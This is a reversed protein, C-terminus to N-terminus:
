CLKEKIYIRLEDQNYRIDNMTAFMTLYDIKEFSTINSKPSVNYIKINKERLFNNMLKSPDHKEYYTTFKIGRHEINKYYHTDIKDRNKQQEDTRKTWDYGLLFITGNYDLLFMAVSISFIGTLALSYFGKNLCNISNYGASEKLLITNQYKNEKIVSKNPAIMLPLAKLNNVHNINVPEDNKNFFKGIYFNEDICTVFTNPFHNFAFNCAIVCKNTLRNALGLSIGEQISTGGGIIIIQNLKDM